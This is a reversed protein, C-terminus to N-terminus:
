LGTSAGSVRKHSLSVSLSLSTSVYIACTRVWCERDNKKVIQLPEADIADEMTVDTEAEKSASPFTLLSQEDDSGELVLSGSKGSDADKAPGFTRISTSSGDAAGPGFAVQVSAASQVSFM